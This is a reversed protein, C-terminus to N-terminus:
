KELFTKKNIPEKFKMLPLIQKIEEDIAFPRCIPLQKRVKLLPM